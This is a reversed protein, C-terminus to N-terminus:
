FITVGVGVAAIGAVQPVLFARRRTGQAPHEVWFRNLTAPLEAGGSLEVFWGPSPAWRARALADVSLWFTSASGGLHLEGAHAGARAGVCPELSLAPDRIALRLPCLELGGTIRRFSVFTPDSAEGQAYDVSARLSPSLLRTGGQRLEFAVRGIPAVDPAVDGAIGFSAVAAGHWPARHVSAAVRQRRVPAALATPRPQLRAPSQPPMRVPAPASSSTAPSPAAPPPEDRRAQGSLAVALALALADVVEDCRAGTFQRAGAADGGWSLEGDFGAAGHSLRVVAHPSGAADRLADPIRAKVRTLLGDASPCEPPALYDLSFHVPGAALASAAALLVLM